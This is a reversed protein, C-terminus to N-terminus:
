ARNKPATIKTKQFLTAGFLVKPLRKALKTDAFQERLWAKLTQHHIDRTLIVNLSKKLLAEVLKEAKKIEGKGYETIVKTKIISEYDNRELWHYASPRNEESIGCIIEDKLDVKFGNELTISETGAEEMALPLDETQVRKLEDKLAALSSEMDEIHAELAMQYEALQVIQQLDAM